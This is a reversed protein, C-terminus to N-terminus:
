KSHIRLNTERHDKRINRDTSCETVSWSKRMRFIKKKLIEFDQFIWFKKLNEGNEYSM